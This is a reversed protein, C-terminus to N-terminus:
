APGSRIPISITFRTGEGGVSEARITGKHKEIIGYIISLGLGTGEGVPKTTFFPDFIRSLNEPSIGCGSDTIVVVVSDGTRRTSIRVEGDRDIAQAANVLLNTWVQNLQGAYCEVLPLEGYDRLLCIQGSYYRSLIRLTSDISENLNVSSIEPEDLRCFLRLNKVIDGIREAGENCDTIVSSLESMLKEYQVDAKIATVKRADDDTLLAQDFSALLRALKGTYEKLLDMNGYIFAAPNNLEHAVGAALQGLSAMKESHIIQAQLRELEAKRKALEQNQQELDAQYQRATAMLARRELAREVSLGLVELEVPKVLYDFAGLQLADRIRQARSIGSVMIVATDSYRQRVHRLLEIGSLGPMQVDSVVVAFSESSLQTLAENSSAAERCGYREGLFESFTQRLSTEDDVILVRCEDSNDLVDLGGCEHGDRMMRSPTGPQSASTCPENM